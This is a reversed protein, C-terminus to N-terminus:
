DDSPMLIWLAVYLLPSLLLVGALAALRTVLLSAEYRRAYASAVGGLLRPNRPRSLGKRRFWERAGALSADHQPTQTSAASNMKYEM